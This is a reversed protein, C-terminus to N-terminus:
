SRSSQKPSFKTDAPECVTAGHEDGVVLDDVACGVERGGRSALVRQQAREVRLQAAPGCHRDLVLQQRAGRLEATFVFLAVEVSM